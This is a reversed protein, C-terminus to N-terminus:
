PRSPKPVTAGVANLIGKPGEKELVWPLYFDFRRRSRTIKGGVMPKNKNRANGWRKRDGGGEKPFFDSGM